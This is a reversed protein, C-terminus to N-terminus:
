RVEMTLYIVGDRFIIYGKEWKNNNKDLVWVNSIVRLSCKESDLMMRLFMYGNSQSMTEIGPYDIMDIPLYQEPNEYFEYKRINNRFIFKNKKSDGNRNMFHYVELVKEHDELIRELGTEIWHEVIGWNTALNKAVNNKMVLLQCLDSACLDREVIITQSTGDDKYFTVDQEEPLTYEERLIEYAPTYVYIHTNSPSREKKKSTFVDWFKLFFSLSHIREREEGEEKLIAQEDEESMLIQAEAM